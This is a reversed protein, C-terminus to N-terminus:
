ESGIDDETGDDAVVAPSYALQDGPSATFSLAKDILEETLLGLIILM